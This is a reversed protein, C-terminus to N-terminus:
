LSRKVHEISFCDIKDGAQMNDYKEFAMGCDQGMYVESVEDKFRKLTKLKGEYMVKGDRMLRVGSGRAVKGELVKCGAVNGLKTVSFVELVEANGLFTERVEPPLLDSMFDKISDLLDYIIKYYLIKVGDRTSLARAQSSANVNFAFIVADSAKALSVDTENIAGVSSHVISVCVEDTKLESLSNVIAEVSGQVDGKIIVSFEKVKSSIDANRMFNELFSRSGLRRAMSKNRTVRKRYQTIERARSESDVVGFRDGAMPLGQLGLIEVPMSPLAESINQGRDNFLARIKGWHDGVVLINGIRLTGKQVLVTVVPGKGRDLQGEVVVGEAKRNASARLNLIEAQLLISDLLKDLHLNDKASIEVDLIEGGMSEVFVDHNLLNMRVKQADAGAKDIKNIAVVISVDASKAHKISEIAQPMIEEDAALVLVAVDTIRAGRARMESFAAHGPTDIFTIKKGRYDAQYAGIHQTIGGVEGKVVNANRIADLLSTKGHDVHGMITVVPPRVELHEESDVVDFIGLEVDSELVRKVVHGFENAIIESLDADIVDGPKMMQGGEKMLFKIVDASRESMRQSLEQITITESVVIDRSIKERKEQRKSRRFKEQRRRMASLSRGRSSDGEEDIDVSAVIKIKKCRKEDDGAKNRVALKSQNVSPHKSSGGRSKGRGGSSDDSSKRSKNSVLESGEVVSFGSESVAHSSLVSSETGAEIAVDADLLDTQKKSFVEKKDFVNEFDQNEDGSDSLIINKEQYRQELSEQERKIRSEEDRVQAEQLARRRSEIESQSLGGFASDNKPLSGKESRLTRRLNDKAKSQSLDQSNDSSSEIVRSSKRFVSVKEDGQVYSRRKRTEVVVSRARGQQNTGQNPFSSHGVSSSSAKLTLIKKETVNSTKNDKNDTM